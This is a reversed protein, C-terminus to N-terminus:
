FNKWPETAIWLLLITLVNEAETLLFLLLHIYILNQFEGVIKVCIMLLCHFFLLSILLYILLDVINMM